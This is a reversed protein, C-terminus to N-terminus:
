ILHITFFISRFLVSRETDKSIQRTHNLFFFFCVCGCVCRCVCVSVCM